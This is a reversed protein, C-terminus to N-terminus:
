NTIAIYIGVVSAVSMLVLTLAGLLRIWPPSTWQRLRKKDNALRYIAYLLPPAIIANGVASYILLKVPSVNLTNILAGLLTSITIVTYFFRAQYWKKGLGETKSLLECFAYGVVSSLVPVALLGTGIIGLAFLLSALSGAFPALIRAAQDATDIQTIGNAHLVTAATLIVFWAVINSFSMGSVLDIFSFRLHEKLRVQKLHDVNRAIAQGSELECNSQWVYLYPSITTGLFAVSIFLLNRDLSMSPILTHRFANAWDVHIVFAVIVYSFLSFTLWKLYKAYSQYEIVIQMALTVTTLIILWGWFPIRDSVLNAASAMMGLDAGINVTNAIGLLLVILWVFWRPFFTRVNEILGKKTVIAIRSCMEQVAIMCPLTFLTLWLPGLGFQAGAQSYTAIGSPDDDSAGTIIGPGLRKFFTRVRDLM